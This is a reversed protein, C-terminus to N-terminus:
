APAKRQLSLLRPRGPRPRDRLGALGAAMFRRCWTRVQRPVTQMDRAIECLPVGDACALVYAARRATRVQTTGARLLGRLEARQEETLEVRTATAGPDGPRRAVSTNM